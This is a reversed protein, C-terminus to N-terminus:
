SPCTKKVRDHVTCRAGNVGALYKTKEFVDWIDKYKKSKLVQVKKGLWRECDKLFRVNDKHESGTDCYAVVADPYKELTLKAAVASTVGCSFWAIVRSM